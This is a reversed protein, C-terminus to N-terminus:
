HGTSIRRCRLKGDGLGHRRGVRSRWIIATSALADAESGWIDRVGDGTYDVAFAMYSTPIFQTHGMAGAWSGHLKAADRCREAPDQAGSHDAPACLRQTCRSLRAYRTVADRGYLGQGQRFQKRYGLDRAPHSPRGRLAEGASRAAGGEGAADGQGSGPRRSGNLLYQSTTSTFEPQNDALKLVAPDPQDVGAFGREFTARKIKAQAVAPWLGEVFKRFGADYAGAPACWAM